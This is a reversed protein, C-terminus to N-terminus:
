RPTAHALGFAHAHGCRDLKAPACVGALGGRSRQECVAAHHCLPPLPLEPMEVVFLQPEQGHIALTAQTCRPADRASTKMTKTEMHAIRQSDCQTFPRAPDDEDVVMWATVRCRTRLVDLERNPEGSCTLDDRRREDIMDDDTVM